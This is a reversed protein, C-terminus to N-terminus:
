QQNYYGVYSNPSGQVNQGARLLTKNKLQNRSSQLKYNYLSGLFGIAM